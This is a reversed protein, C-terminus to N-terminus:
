VSCDCTAKDIITLMWKGNIYTLYLILESGITGTIVVRRSANELKYFYNITKPSIKRKSQLNIEKAIKSLLHNTRTTDVFTGDKSWKECDFTPLTSYQLRTLRVHDYFPANPYTTDSFGLTNFQKYTQFVGIVHLIYVGTKKAIYKSLTLSDRNKLAIVVTKLTSSFQIEKSSQGFSPTSCIAAVLLNIFQKM